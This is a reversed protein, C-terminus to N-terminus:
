LGPFTMQIDRCVTSPGDKVCRQDEPCKSNTECVIECHTKGGARPVCQLGAECKNKANCARGQGPVAKAFAVASLLLGLLLARKMVALM